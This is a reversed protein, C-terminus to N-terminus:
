TSTHMFCVFALAKSPNPGPMRGTTGSVRVNMTVVNFPFVDIELGCNGM